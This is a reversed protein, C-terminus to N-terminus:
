MPEEELICVYRQWSRIGTKKKKEIEDYLRSFQWSRKNGCHQAQQIHRRFWRVKFTSSESPDGYIAHLSLLRFPAVPSAVVKHYNIGAGHLHGCVAKIGPEM